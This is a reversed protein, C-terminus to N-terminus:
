IATQIYPSTTATNTKVAQIAVKPPMMLDFMLCRGKIILQTSIIHLTSATFAKPAHLLTLAVSVITDIAKVAM